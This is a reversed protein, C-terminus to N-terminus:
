FSLAGSVTRLLCVPARYIGIIQNVHNQLIFVTLLTPSTDPVRTDPHRCPAWLHVSPFFPKMTQLGAPIDPMTSLWLVTFARRWLRLSSSSPPCPRHEAPACAGFPLGKWFESKNLDADSCKGKSKQCQDSFCRLCLWVIPFTNIIILRMIKDDYSLLILWLM